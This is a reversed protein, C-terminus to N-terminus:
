CYSVSTCTSCCPYFYYILFGCYFQYVWLLIKNFYSFAVRRTVKRSIIHWKWSNRNFERIPSYYYIVNILRFRRIDIITNIVGITFLIWSFFADTLSLLYCLKHYQLSQRRGISLIFTNILKIFKWQFIKYKNAM